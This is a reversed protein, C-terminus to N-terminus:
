GPSASWRSADAVVRADPVIVSLSRASRRRDVVDGDGLAVRAGDVGVKM